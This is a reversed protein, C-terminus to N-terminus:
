LSMLSPRTLRDVYWKMHFLEIQRENYNYLGSHPLGTLLLYTASSECAM